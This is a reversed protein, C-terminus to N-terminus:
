ERETGTPRLELVPAKEARRSMVPGMHDMTARKSEELPSTYVDLTMKISSHGLIGAVSAADMGEAIAHTAFTHRLDHFTVREGTVGTLNLAAALQSWQKSLANPSQYSDQATGPDAVTGIVYLGKSFAVELEACEEIMASRRASLLEHLEPDIPIQRTKNSKPAKNYTAGRDRGIANCVTLREKKLDVDQWRLGCIEGIRMGTHLAIRAADALVTHGILDLATNLRAYSDGDLANPNIGTGRPRKVSACPNRPLEELRVAHACAANLLNFAKAVTSASLGSELLGNKWKEVAKPTLQVLPLGDFGDKIHAAIYRYTNATSPQISDDKQKTLTDIYDSVYGYVTATTWQQDQARQREEEEAQERELTEAIYEDRWTKFARRAKNENTTDGEDMNCPIPRGDKDTLIHSVTIRSADKGDKRKFQGRWKGNYKQISGASFREGM